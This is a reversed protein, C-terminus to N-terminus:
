LRRYFVSVRIGMTDITTSIGSSVLKLLVESDGVTTSVILEESRELDLQIPSDLKTVMIVAPVGHDAEVLALVPVKIIMRHYDVTVDFEAKGTEQTSEEPTIAFGETLQPVSKKRSPPRSKGKERPAITGIHAGDEDRKEYSMVGRALNASGQIIDLSGKGDIALLRMEPSMGGAPDTATVASM